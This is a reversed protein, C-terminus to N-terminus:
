IESFSLEGYTLKFNTKFEKRKNQQKRFVGSQKRYLLTVGVVGVVACTVLVVLAVLLGMSALEAM